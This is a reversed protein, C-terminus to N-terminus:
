EGETITLAQSGGYILILAIMGSITFLVFIYPLATKPVDFPLYGLTHLLWVLMTFVFSTVVGKLVFYAMDFIMRM